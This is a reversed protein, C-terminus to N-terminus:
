CGVLGLVAVSQHEVDVMACIWEDRGRGRSESADEGAKGEGWELNFFDDTDDFGVCRAYAAAGKGCFLEVYAKRRGMGKMLNGFSRDKVLVFEVVLGGALCELAKAAFEADCSAAGAATAPEVKDDEFVGAGDIVVGRKVKCFKIDQVREGSYIDAGGVFVRDCSM